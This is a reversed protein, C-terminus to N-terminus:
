KKGANKRVWGIVGAPILDTRLMKPTIKARSAQIRSYRTRTRLNLRLVNRPNTKKSKRASKAAITTRQIESSRRRRLRCRSPGCIRDVGVTVGAIEGGGVRGGTM